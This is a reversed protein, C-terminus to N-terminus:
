ARVTHTCNAGMHMNHIDHIDIPGMVVQHTKGSLAESVGSLHIHLQTYTMSYSFGYFSFVNNSAM